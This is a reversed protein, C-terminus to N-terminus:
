GHTKDEMLEEEEGKFAAHLQEFTMANDTASSSQRAYSATSPFRKKLASVRARKLKHTTPPVGGCAIIKSELDRIYNVASEVKKFKKLKILSLKERLTDERNGSTSNYKRQLYRWFIWPCLHEERHHNIGTPDTVSREWTEHIHTKDPGLALIIGAMERAQTKKNNANNRRAATATSVLPFVNHPRAWQHLPDRFTYEAM